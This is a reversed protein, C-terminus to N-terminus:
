WLDVVFFSTDDAKQECVDRAGKSVKCLDVNDESSM